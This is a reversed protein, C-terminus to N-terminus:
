LKPQERNAAHRRPLVLQLGARWRSPGAKDQRGQRTSATRTIAGVPGFEEEVREEFSPDAVFQYGNDGAVPLRHDVESRVIALPIGDPFARCRSADDDYQHICFQCLPSPVDM